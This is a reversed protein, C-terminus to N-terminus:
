FCNYNSSPNGQIPGLYFKNIQFIKHVTDCHFPLNAAAIGTTAVFIAKDSFYSNLCSLTFSKGTRATGTLITLYQDSSNKAIFYDIFNNQKANLLSKNSVINIKNESNVINRSSNIILSSNNPCYSPPYSDTCTENLSYLKNVDNAFYIVQNEKNILLEAATFIDPDNPGIVPINLDSPDIELVPIPISSSNYDFISINPNFTNLSLHQNFGTSMSKQFVSLPIYPCSFSLESEWLNIFEHPSRNLWVNHRWPIFWLYRVKCYLNYTPSSSNPIYNYSPQPIVVLQKNNLLPKRLLCKIQKNIYYTSSFSKLSINNLSTPRTAYFDIHKPLFMPQNGGNVSDGSINNNSLTLTLDILIEAPFQIDSPIVNLSGLTCFHLPNLVDNLDVPVYPAVNNNFNNNNITSVPLILNNKVVNLQFPLNTDRSISVLGSDNEIISIIDKAFVLSFERSSSLDINECLLSSFYLEKNLLLQCAEQSSVSRQFHSKIMSSFIITSPSPINIRSEYNDANILSEEIYSLLDCSVEAKTIYKTIYNCLCGTDIIAQIDCNGKLM